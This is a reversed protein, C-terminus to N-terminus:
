KINDKIDNRLDFSNGLVLAFILLIAAAAVATISAYPSNWVTPLFFVLGLGPLLSYLPYKVICPIDKWASKFSFPKRMRKEKVSSSRQFNRQKVLPDRDALQRERLRKLRESDQDPM